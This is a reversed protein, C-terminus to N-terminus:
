RLAKEWRVKVSSIAEPGNINKAKGGKRSYSNGKNSTNGVTWGAAKYITGKHVETDQYSIIRERDPHHKRFYRVIWALFQSAGNRPM